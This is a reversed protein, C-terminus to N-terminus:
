SGKASSAAKERRKKENRYVTHFQKWQDRMAPPWGEVRLEAATEDKKITNEDNKDAEKKEDKPKLKKTVLQDVYTARAQGPPLAFYDAVQNLHKGLWAAELASRYEAESLQGTKFADDLEKDRDDLVKYFQRQKDFSLADFGRGHVFHAISVTDANLRPEDPTAGRFAM